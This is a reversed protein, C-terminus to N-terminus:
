ARRRFIPSREELRDEAAEELALKLEQDACTDIAVRVCDHLEPAESKGLVMAAAIRREAPAAPDTLLQSLADLTISRRRYGEAGGVLRQVAQRWQAITRGARDLEGLDAGSTGSAKMATEIREVIIHQKHEAVTAYEPDVAAPLGASGNTQLAIRIPRGEAPVIVVGQPETALLSISRYPLFRPRRLFRPISVGDMGITLRRWRVLHAFVALIGIHILGVAGLILSGWLREITFGKSISLGLLYLVVLLSTGTIGLSVISLFSVGSGKTSAFSPLDITLARQGVDAGMAQLLSRADKKSAAVLVLTLKGKMRLVVQAPDQIWGDVVDARAYRDVGRASTVDMGADTTQVTAIYRRSPTLRSFLAGAGFGLTGTPGFLAVSTLEKMGLAPGVVSSVGAVAASIWFAWMIIARVKDRWMRAVAVNGLRISAHTM